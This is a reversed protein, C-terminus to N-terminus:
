LEGKVAEYMVVHQRSGDAFPRNRLVGVRRLGVRQAFAQALFNDVPIEAVLRDISYNSMFTAASERAEKHHRMGAKDWIAVHASAVVEPGQVLHGVYWAGAGGGIDFDMAVTQCMQPHEDLYQKLRPSM